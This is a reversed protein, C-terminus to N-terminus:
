KKHAFAWSFSTGMWEAGGIEVASKFVEALWEIMHAKFKLNLFLENDAEKREVQDGPKGYAYKLDHPLCCKFTIDKWDCGTFLGALEDPIMSCGDFKWDKYREPNQEIRKALYGLKFYRCLLIGERNNITDGIEPLKITHKM